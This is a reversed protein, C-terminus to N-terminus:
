SAGEANKEEGDNDNEADNQASSFKRKEGFESAQGSDMKKQQQERPRPIQYM